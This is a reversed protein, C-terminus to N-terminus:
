YFSGSILVRLLAKYEKFKPSNSRLTYLKLGEKSPVLSQRILNKNKNIIQNIQDVDLKTERSLANITWFDWQPNNLAKLILQKNLCEDSDAINNQSAVEINSPTTEKLKVVQLMKSKRIENRDKDEKILNILEITRQNKNWAKPVNLFIKYCTDKRSDTIFKTKNFSKLVNDPINKKPPTKQM